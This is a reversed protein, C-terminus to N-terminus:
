PDLFPFVTSLAAHEHPFRVFHLSTVNFFIGILNPIFFINGPPLSHATSRNATDNVDGNAVVSSDAEM